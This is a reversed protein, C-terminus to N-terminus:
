IYKFKTMHFLMRTNTDKSWCKKCTYQLPFLFMKSSFRRVVHLCSNLLYQLFRWLLQLSTFAYPKLFIELMTFYWCVEWKEWKVRPKRCTSLKGRIWNDPESNSCFWKLPNLLSGLRTDLYGLAVQSKYHLCWALPLEQCKNFEMSKLASVMYPSIQVPSNYNNTNTIVEM